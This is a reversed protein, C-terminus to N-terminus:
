GRALSRGAAAPRGPATPHLALPRAGAEVLRVEEETTTVVTWLLALHVYTFALKAYSAFIGATFFALLGVELYLIQQAAEILGARRARRRVREARLVVGGFLAVFLLFGVTGTEALLTLYTSHADKRGRATAKFESSRAYKGHTSAYAGLGVGTVPHDAYIARAVKWIEFRQEASGEQDVKDLQETDTVNRLGSLREWVSAPAFVMIVAVVAAFMGITRLRRQKRQGALVFLGFMALGIIAGRSQTLLIVVPLVFLGAVAALRPWGKPERQLLALV